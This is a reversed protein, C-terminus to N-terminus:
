IRRSLIVLLVSKKRRKKWELRTETDYRHIMRLITRRTTGREPCLPESHAFCIALMQLLHELASVRVAVTAVSSVEDFYVQCM